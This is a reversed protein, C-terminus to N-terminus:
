IGTRNKIQIKKGLGWTFIRRINVMSFGKPAFIMLVMLAFGYILMNYDKLMRLSEKVEILVISGLIPGLISGMGGL